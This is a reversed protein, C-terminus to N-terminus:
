VAPTVAGVSPSPSPTASASPSPSPSASASPSPSPSSDVPVSASPSPSVNLSACSLVIEIVSKGRITKKVPNPIAQFEGSWEPYGVCAPHRAVAYYKKDAEVTEVRSNTGALQLVRVLGIKKHTTADQTYLCVEAGNVAGAGFDNIVKVEVTGNKKNLDRQNACVEKIPIERRPASAEPAMNLVYLTLLLLVLVIGSLVSYLVKPNSTM